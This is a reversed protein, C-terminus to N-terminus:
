YVYEVKAFGCDELKDIITRMDKLKLVPFEKDIWKSCSTSYTQADTDIGLYKCNGNRNRETRFELIM